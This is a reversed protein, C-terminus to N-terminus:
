RVWITLGWALDFGVMQREMKRSSARQGRIWSWLDMHASLGAWCHGANKHLNGKESELIVTSNEKERSRGGAKYSAAPSRTYHRGGWRCMREMEQAAPSWLGSDQWLWETCARTDLAKDRNETEREQATLRKEEVLNNQLNIFVGQFWGAWLFLFLM